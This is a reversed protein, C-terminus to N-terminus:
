VAPVRGQNGRKLTMLQKKLSMFGTIISFGQPYFMNCQVHITIRPRDSFDNYVCNIYILPYTIFIFVHLPNAYRLKIFFLANAENNGKERRTQKVNEGSLVENRM